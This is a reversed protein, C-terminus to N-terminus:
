RKDHAIIWAVLYGAYSGGTTLLRATDAWGEAVTKDLATLVDSTPGNGWDKVNARLFQEGYGGSGRPNSYVVGYGRSCFFQYEHWMSAEGPGWMASPGGHIELLLPYKKGTQYNTPKMVWYEVAMGQNNTFTKKEPYSLKKRQVWDNFASIRKPNKLTADAIYVESPNAVETRAFVVKDSTVGFSTIGSNYDSLQEIKKTSVNLRYLPAGGNSQAVFYLYREDPSWTLNAKTRDLPINIIDKATGNLPMLALVPVHVSDAPGFQLALWKGSPSLQPSNYNIGPAGLLLRFQKGSTDALFFSNELSRDPHRLSDVNGSILVSRGDPLFQIGNFRYFGNTIAKPVAGPQLSTIFFHVFNMEASVNSEDQFNLKNLVRAKNDTVDNELYARIEEMSGEPNSTASGVQLFENKAFGPREFPWLPALHIPNLVSDKLLDNMPISAAFLLKKGNPSWQPNSAGYKFRTVQVAEGGNMSLIFIQPKGEVTRVFALQRGDPSWSPQSAGEKGFTLQLPATTGTLPLLYIQNIYKYDLKSKDDPEISTLTFAAKTGDRTITINGATKIKLMDTVQILENGKQAFAISVFVSISLFLIIRKM